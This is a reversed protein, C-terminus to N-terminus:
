LKSPLAGKLKKWYEESEESIWRHSENAYPIKERWFLDGQSAEVTQGFAEGELFTDHAKIVTSMPTIHEQPWLDLMLQPLLGTNVFAPCVANVLIEERKLMPAVCRVLGVVAHKSAGYLPAAPMPYFGATSATVTIRGGKRGDRRRGAFFRYIWIGDAVAKFDVDVARQDLPKPLGSEDTEMRDARKYMSNKETIGANAAFYDIRGGGWEFVDRFFTAHAAYDTIDVRKFLTCPSKANLAASEKEGAAGNVDCMGVKWGKAVLHRTLALGMGSAAGTILAVPPTESAM